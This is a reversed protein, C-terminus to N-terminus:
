KYNRFVDLEDDFDTSLKIKGKAYGFEREKLTSPITSSDNLSDIFEELKRRKEPSLASIKKQLAAM